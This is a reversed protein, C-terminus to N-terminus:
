AGRANTGGRKAKIRKEAAAFVGEWERMNEKGFHEIAKNWLADIQAPTTAQELAATILGPTPDSEDGSTLEEGDSAEDVALCLIRSYALRAMYTTFATIKQPNEHPPIPIASLRFQGAWTLETVLFMGGEERPTFSQTVSLGNESLAIRTARDMSALDAFKGYPGERNKLVPGFQGRAKALAKDLDATTESCERYVYIRRTM